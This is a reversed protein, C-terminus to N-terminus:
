RRAWEQYVEKLEEARRTALGGRCTAVVLPAISGGENLGAEAQCQADRYEGWAKEAAELQPIRDDAGKTHLAGRAAAYALAELSDAVKAKQGYCANMAMQSAASDCSDPASAQVPAAAVPPQQAPPDDAAQRPKCGFFLVAGLSLAGISYLKSDSM